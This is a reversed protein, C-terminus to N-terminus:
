KAIVVLSLVLASAMVFMSARTSTSSSLAQGCVNNCGTVKLTALQSNMYAMQTAYTAIACCAKPIVAAARTFLDCANTATIGASGISASVVAQGDNVLKTVTSSECDVDTTTAGGGCTNACSTIGLATLSYQQALMVGQTWFTNSCCAAPFCAAVKTFYACATSNKKSDEINYTNECTNIATRVADSKCNIYNVAYACPLLFLFYLARPM